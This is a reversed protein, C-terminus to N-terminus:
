KYFNENIAKQLDDENIKCKIINGNKCICAFCWIEAPTEDFILEIKYVHIQKNNLYQKVAKLREKDSDDSHGWKDACLTENYYVWVTDKKCASFLISAFAFAMIIIVIKKM